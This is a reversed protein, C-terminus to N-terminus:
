ETETRNNLMEQAKQMLVFDQGFRKGEARRVAAGYQAYAQGAVTLLQSTTVAKPRGAGVLMFRVVPNELARGMGFLHAMDALAAPSLQAAERIISAGAIATGADEVGIDMIKAVSGVDQMAQVQEKSLFRLWGAEQFEKFRARYAKGNIKPVGLRGAESITPEVIEDMISARMASQFEPGSRDFLSKFNAIARTSDQRSILDRTFGRVESHKNVNEIINLSLTDQIAGSTKRLLRIEKPTYLVRLANPDWASLMKPLEIPDQIFRRTQVEKLTRMGGPGAMRSFTALRELQDDGPSLLHNVAEGGKQADMALKFEAVSAAERMKFREKAATRATRWAQTNGRVPNDLIKNLEGIMERAVLQEQRPGIAPDVLAIDHLNREIARLRDVASISRGSEDVVPPLSPDIEALKNLERQLVPDLEDLRINETVVKERRLPKGAADVIGTDIAVTRPRSPTFIGQRLQNIRPLAPRLDLAPEAESRALTFLDDVDAGTSKWRAEVFENTAIATEAPSKKSLRMTDEIVKTTRAIDERVARSAQGIIRSRGQGRTLSRAKETLEAVRERRGRRGGPLTADIQAQLRQIAPVDAVESVKPASIGLRRAARTAEEAGPRLGVTGAGRAINTMGGAVSGVTGGTVSFFQEELVRGAVQTKTERQTGAAVQAVEQALTGGAAGLPGARFPGLQRLMKVIRNAKLFPLKTAFFAAALDGGIAGASGAIDAVDALEEGTPLFRPGSIGTRRQLGAPQDVRVFPDQTGSKRFVEVGAPNRFEFGLISAAAQREEFTQGFTAVFGRNGAGLPQGQITEQGLTAAALEDQTMEQAGSINPLRGGSARIEESRRILDEPSVRSGGAGQKRLAEAQDILEQPSAM